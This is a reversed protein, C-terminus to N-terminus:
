EEKAINQLSCWLFRWAELYSFSGEQCCCAIDDPGIPRLGRYPNRGAIVCPPMDAKMVGTFSR